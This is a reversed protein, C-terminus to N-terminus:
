WVDYAISKSTPHTKVEKDWDGENIFAKLLRRDRRHAFKQAIKRRKGDDFNISKKHTLKGYVFEKQNYGIRYKREKLEYSWDIDKIEVDGLYKILTIPPSYESNELKVPKHTYFDLFGKKPHNYVSYKVGEQEVVWAEASDYVPYKDPYEGNLTYICENVNEERYLNETVKDRNKFIQKGNDRLMHKYTQKKRKQNKLNYGGINNKWAGKM